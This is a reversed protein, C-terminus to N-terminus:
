DDHDLPKKNIMEMYHKYCLAGLEIEPHDSYNEIQFETMEDCFFDKGGECMLGGLAEWGPLLKMGM